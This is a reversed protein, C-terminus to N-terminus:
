DLSIGSAPEFKSGLESLKKHAKAYSVFFAEQNDRFKEAFPRFKDDTFVARDSSMKLLEEDANPDNLTIFYSNDFILFKETWSQGGPTYPADTGDARPQKMSGDTFKTKEKGLGSRNAYARGFTHAGSLAVIEEDNFGMRYFVKRLHGEPENSETSATGGPGGYKGDPGAEGDPLNGEPSCQDPSSADVRGYKVNLKPGGATEIARCSAMQFIDAYSVNPYAKKAPELLKIAGVLGANAGHNIEPAFRISAVAGGAAPWEGKVDKDFTGSDHWALRVMIPGCAKDYLIQDIMTQAGLLDDKTTGKLSTNRDGMSSAGLFTVGKRQSPIFAVASLLSSVLVFATLGRNM